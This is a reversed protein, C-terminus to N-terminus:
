AGKLEFGGQAAADEDPAAPPEGPPPSEQPDPAPPTAEAAAETAATTEPPRPAVAPPRAEDVGIQERVWHLFEGSAFEAYGFTRNMEGHVVRFAKGGDEISVVFQPVDGYFEDVRAAYQESTGTFAARVVAKVRDVRALGHAMVNVNRVECKAFYASGLLAEALATKGTGPPEDFFIIRPRSAM